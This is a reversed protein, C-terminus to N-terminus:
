SFQRDDWYGLFVSEGVALTLPSESDVDGFNSALPVTSDVFTADVVDGQEVVYLAIDEAIGFAGFQFQDGGLDDIGFGFLGQGDRGPLLPSQSLGLSYDGFVVDTPSNRNDTLVADDEIVQQAFGVMPLVALVMFGFLSTSFLKM